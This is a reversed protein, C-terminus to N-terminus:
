AGATIWINQRPEECVFEASSEAPRKHHLIHRPGAPDHGGIDDGLGRWVAM